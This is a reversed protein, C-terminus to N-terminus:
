LLGELLTVMNACVKCFHGHIVHGNKSHFELSKVSIMQFGWDIQIKTRNYMVDYSVEAGSLRTNIAVGEEHTSDRPISNLPCLPNDCSKNGTPPYFPHITYTTIAM